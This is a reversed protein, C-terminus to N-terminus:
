EIGKLIWILWNSNWLCFGLFWFMWLYLYWHSSIVIIIIAAFIEFNISIVESKKVLFLYFCVKRGGPILYKKIKKLKINSSLFCRLTSFVDCLFLQICLLPVTQFCVALLNCSVSGQLLVHQHVFLWLHALCVTSFGILIYAIWISYSM